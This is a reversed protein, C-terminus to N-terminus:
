KEVKFHQKKEANPSHNFKKKRCKTEQTTKKHIIRYHKIKKVNKIFLFDKSM